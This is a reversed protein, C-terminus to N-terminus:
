LPDSLEERVKSLLGDHKYLALLTGIKPINFSLVFSVPKLTEKANWPRCLGHGGATCVHVEHRERSM